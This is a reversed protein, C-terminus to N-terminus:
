RARQEDCYTISHQELENSWDPPGHSNEPLVYFDRTKANNLQVQTSDDLHFLFNNRAYLENELPETKRAKIVLYKPIASTVQYFQLFNTNCDYKWVKM